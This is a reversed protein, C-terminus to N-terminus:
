QLRSRLSSSPCNLKTPPTGNFELHYGQSIVEMVWKRPKNRELGNSFQLTARWGSPPNSSAAQDQSKFTSKHDPQEKTITDMDKFFKEKPRTETTCAGIPNAWGAGTSQPWADEWFVVRKNRSKPTQKALLSQLAKLPSLENQYRMWPMTAM